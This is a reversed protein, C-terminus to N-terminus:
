GSPKWSKRAEEGPATLVTAIGEIENDLAGTCFAAYLENDSAGKPTQATASVCYGANMLLTAAILWHILKIGSL